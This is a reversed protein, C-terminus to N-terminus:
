DEGKKLIEEIDLCFRDKLKERMKKGPLVRGEEWDYITQRSTGLNLSFVVVSMGRGKRYNRIKMGIEAAREKRDFPPKKWSKELYIYYQILGKVQKRLKNLEKEVEELSERYAVAKRELKKKDM